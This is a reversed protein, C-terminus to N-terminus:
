TAFSCVVPVARVTSDTSGYFQAKRMGLPEGLHRCNALHGAPPYLVEAVVAAAHHPLRDVGSCALLVECLQMGVVNVHPGDVNWWLVDPLPTEPFQRPQPRVYVDAIVTASPNRTVVRRQQRLACLSCYCLMNPRKPQLAFLCSVPHCCHCPMGFEGRRTESEAELSHLVRPLGFTIEM